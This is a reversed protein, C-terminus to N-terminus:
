KVAITTRASAETSGEGVATVVLTYMHGAQCPAPTGTKQGSLSDIEWVRGSVTGCADPADVNVTSRVAIAGTTSWAYQIEAGASVSLASLTSATFAISPGASEAVQVVGIAETTTGDTGTAILKLTYTHGLQCSLVKARLTGHTASVVWPGNASGCGDPSDVEVTSRLSAVNATAWRYTLDMGPRAVLSSAGNIAFRVMPAGSATRDVAHTQVFDDAVNGARDFTRAVFVHSGPGLQTTDLVGRYPPQQGLDGLVKRGDAWLEVNAVAARDDSAVVHIEQAPELEADDRFPVTLVVSPPIHDGGTARVLTGAAESADQFASLIADTYGQELNFVPDPTSPGFQYFELVWPSSYAVGKQQLARVFDTMFPDRGSALGQKTDYGYEGVYLKKGRSSAFRNLYDILGVANLGFRNLDNSGGYPHISILDIDRHTDALYTEFDTKSDNKNSWKRERRSSQANQRPLGYGSSIERAPDISRILAALRSTFGIMEDTSFNGIASCAEAEGKHENLCTGRTDIDTQLNLENTLEYFLITKRNKYREVFETVYRSLLGWSASAANAVLDRTTERGTAAPFQASNWVFSPVLSMEAADLDDMMEDMQRWYDDPRQKWVGLDSGDADRHAVPGYGTVATRLFRAGFNKADTISKQAMAVTTRRVEETGDGGSARGMYQLTLNFQNMGSTVAHGSAWSLGSESKPTAPMEGGAICATSGLLLAGLLSATRRVPFM